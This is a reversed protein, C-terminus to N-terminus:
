KNIKENLSWASDKPVELELLLCKYHSTSSTPLPAKAWYHIRTEPLTGRSHSQHDIGTWLGRYRSHPNTPFVAPVIPRFCKVIWTTTLGFSKSSISCQNILIFPPSVLQLIHGQGKWTQDFHPTTQPTHTSLYIKFISM